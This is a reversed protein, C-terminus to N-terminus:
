ITQQNDLKAALIWAVRPRGASGIRSFIEFNQTATVTKRDDKRMAPHLASRSASNRAPNERPARKAACKTQTPAVEIANGIGRQSVLRTVLRM